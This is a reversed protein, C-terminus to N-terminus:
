HRKKKCNYKDVFYENFSTWRNEKINFSSTTNFVKNQMIIERNNFIIVKDFFNGSINEVTKEDPDIIKSFRLSLNKNNLENKIECILKFENSSVFLPFFIFLLKIIVKM